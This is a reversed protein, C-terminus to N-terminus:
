GYEPGAVAFPLEANVTTARGFRMRQFPREVTWGAGALHELFQRRENVVDLLIPGSESQAVTEILAAASGADDAYLPGIHRATRGDRVMAMARGQSIVRSGSRGGLERLLASRDFGMAHRDRAIMEDLNGDSGLRPGKAAGAGRLRRLELAPFFGLPGYVAAGAPTADLWATLGLKAARDLCAALLRTALGRRRRSATVLVMSIWADAPSYPLLAATAILRADGDRIGLVMAMRLFFRWDAENQNWHSEGSLVLGARADEPALQVIAPQDTGGM